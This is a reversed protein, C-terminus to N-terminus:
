GENARRGKRLTKPEENNTRTRTRTPCVIRVSATRTRTPDPVIKRIADCMAVHDAHDRAAHSVATAHAATDAYSDPAYTVASHTVTTTYSPGAVAAAARLSDLTIKGAQYQEAATIAEASLFRKGTPVYKLVIRACACVITVIQNLSAKHSRRLYWVMWEPRECESWAQEHTRNGIWELAQDCVGLEELENRLTM